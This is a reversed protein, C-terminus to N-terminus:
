FYLFDTNCKTFSTAPSFVGKAKYGVTYRKGFFITRFLDYWEGVFFSVM